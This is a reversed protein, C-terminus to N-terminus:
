HFHCQLQQQETTSSRLHSIQQPSTTSPAPINDIAAATEDETVVTFNTTAPTRQKSLSTTSTTSLRQKMTRTTELGTFSAQPQLPELRTLILNETIEPNLSPQLQHLLKHQVVNVEKRTTELECYTEDNIHSDYVVNVFDDLNVVSQSELEGVLVTNYQNEYSDFQEVPIHNITTLLNNISPQNLQPVTIYQQFQGLYQNVPQPPRPAFYNNFDVQHTRQHSFEPAASFDPINSLSRPKKTQRPKNSM